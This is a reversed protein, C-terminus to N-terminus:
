MLVATLPLHPQINLAEPIYYFSVKGVIEHSCVNTSLWPSAPVKISQKTGGLGIRGVLCFHRKWGRLWERERCVESTDLCRWALDASGRHEKPFFRAGYVPIDADMVFSNRRQRKPSSSDRHAKGVGRWPCSDCIAKSNGQKRRLIRSQSDLGAILVDLQVRVRVRHTKEM